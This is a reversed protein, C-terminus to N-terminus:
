LVTLIEEKNKRVFPLTTTDVNPYGLALISIPRRQDMDLGFLECCKHRDFNCIWLSGVQESWAQLMMSTTAIACDTHLSTEGYEDPYSWCQGVEGAIIIFAGADQIWTRDYCKWIKSKEEESKVLYFHWPQRNCASPAIHGAEVIRALVEEPISKSRDFKRIARRTRLLDLMPM